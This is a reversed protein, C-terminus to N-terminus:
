DDDAEKAWPLVDHKRGDLPPKAKDTTHQNVYQEWLDIARDIKISVFVLWLVVFALVFSVIAEFATSM